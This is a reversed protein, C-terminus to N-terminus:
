EHPLIFEASCPIVHIAIVYKNWRNICQPLVRDLIFTLSHYWPIHPPISVYVLSFHGFVVLFAVMLVVPRLNRRYVRTVFAYPPPNGQPPPPREMETYKSLKHLLILFFLSKTPPKLKLIAYPQPSHPLAISRSNTQAQKVIAKSYHLSCDLSM